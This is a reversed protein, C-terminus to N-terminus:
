PAIRRTVNVTPLPYPRPSMSQQSPIPDPPPIGALDTASKDCPRSKTALHTNFLRRHHPELKRVIHASGCVGVVISSQLIFIEFGVISPSNAIHHKFSALINGWFGLHWCLLSFLGRSSIGYPTPSAEGCFSGIGFSIGTIAQLPILWLMGYWKSIEGDVSAAPCMMKEERLQYDVFVATVLWLLPAIALATGRLVSCLMAAFVDDNLSNSWVVIGAFVCLTIISSVAAPQACEAYWAGIAWCTGCAAMLSLQVGNFRRFRWAYFVRPDAGETVAPSHHSIAVSPGHAGQSFTLAEGTIVLERSFCTMHHKSLEAEVRDREALAHASLPCHYVLRDPDGELSTFRVDFQPGEGSSQITLCARNGASSVNPQEGGFPVTIPPGGNSLPRETDEPPYVWWWVVLLCVLCAGFVALVPLRTDPYPAFTHEFDKATSIDTPWTAKTAEDAVVAVVANPLQWTRGGGDKSAQLRSLHKTHKTGQVLVDAWSVVIVFIVLWFVIGWVLSHSWELM